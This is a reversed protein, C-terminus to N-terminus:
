PKGTPGPRAAEAAERAAQAAARYEPTWRLVLYRPDLAVSRVPFGVPFTFETRAGRARVVRTLRQGPGGRVEIELTARYFPAAQTVAGSLRSGEQEWTLHWEPATAREFWQRRFWALDRGAGAQIAGWFEGWTLEQFAYRRRIGGLVRRFRPRGLERSLMEWVLFGKNYAIQRSDPGAPLDGLPHDQGAGVLRFYQLAGYIPDPPYGRRRFAEAAAPGALSEVVRLGGYEALAEELYRGGPRRLAVTHPWWGHSFEHGYWELLADFHAAPVDFANSNILAFGQLTAANFSAKQALGRPVEVLAFEPFPFPGFERSLVRLIRQVGALHGQMDPRPRLLYASVPIAGARNVLTYRGAAFSLYTPRASKFRFSGRAEEAPASLRRGQAIVNWGAPVSIRLTGGGRRAAGDALPYWATGYASAFCVEPGVYFQPGIQQGGAFSFRLLAARGAPIPRRPRVAWRGEGEGRERVELDAPGASVSPELVAVRLGRM